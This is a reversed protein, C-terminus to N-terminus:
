HLELERFRGMRQRSSRRVFDLLYRVNEDLIEQSAMEDLAHALPKGAPRRYLLRYAKQLAQISEPSIGGRQLGLTNLGRIRCPYTGSAKVFPPLDYSPGSRGGTYAYRGVTVFQHTGTFASLWANREIRTHGSIQCYNGIVVNDEVECDHGFHAGIMLYNNNGIVTKGSKESWGRNITVNERFTNGDGIILSTKIGRCGLVQPDDGLVCNAYIHNERGITTGTLIMVNAKLVCGDGIVVGSEIVCGPGVYVDKGLQADKDVVATPAIQTM